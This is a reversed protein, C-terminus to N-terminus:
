RGISNLWSQSVDTTRASHLTMATGLSSGKLVAHAVPAYGREAVYEVLGRLKQSGSASMRGVIVGDLVIEVVDSTATLIVAVHREGRDLSYSEMLRQPDADTMTVKLAAGEPLIVQSSDPLDNYPAICGAPPLEISVSAFATSRMDDAVWVRASVQLYKRESEIAALPAAYETALERPLHGVLHRGDIWVAVANPDYANDPDTALVAACDKLEIGGFDESTIGRARAASRIAKFADAHFSEGVVPRTTPTGAWAEVFTAGRFRPSADLVPQSRPTRAARADTPTAVTGADDRSKKKFWGVLVFAVEWPRAGSASQGVTSHLPPSLLPGLV